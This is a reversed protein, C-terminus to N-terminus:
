TEPVSAGRPHEEGHEFHVHQLYASTFRGIFEPTDHSPYKKKFVGKELAWDYVGTDLPYETLLGSLAYKGIWERALKENSFV